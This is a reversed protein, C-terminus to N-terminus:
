EGENKPGRGIQAFIAHLPNRARSMLETVIMSVFYLENAHKVQKSVIAMCAVCNKSIAFAKLVVEELQQAREKIIGLSEIMSDTADEIELVHLETGPKVYKALVKKKAVKKTPKKKVTKKVTKKIKKSM